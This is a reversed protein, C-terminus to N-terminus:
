DFLTTVICVGAGGAGGAKAAGSANNSSGAGGGGREGSAGTVNGTPVAGGGFYSDGGAGGAAAADPGSRLGWGGPGGRATFHGTQTQTTTHAGTVGFTNTAALFTGGNGGAARVESGTGAAFTTDSGNGGTTGSAGTGGAGVDVAETASLASAAFVSRAYGGAQGGGGASAQGAATAPAGGGAGGGGVCEVVVTKAGAPKTWTGDGTFEQQDVIPNASSFTSSVTLTGTISVDDDIPVSTGTNVPIQRWNGDERVYAKGTDSEIIARGDYADAGTPRTSSTCETFSISADIKDLNTGHEISVDYPEAADPKSLGLRTTTTRAM